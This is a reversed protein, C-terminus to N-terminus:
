VVNGGDASSSGTIGTPKTDASSTATRAIYSAPSVFVKTAPPPWGTSTGPRRCASAAEGASPTTAPIM